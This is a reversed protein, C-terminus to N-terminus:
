AAPQERNARQAQLVLGDRTDDAIQFLALMGTLVACQFAAILFICGAWLLSVVGAAEGRSLLFIGGALAVLVIVGGLIAVLSRVLRVIQRASDFDTRPALQALIPSKM